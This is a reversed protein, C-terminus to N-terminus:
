TEPNVSAPREAELRLGSDRLYPCFGRGPDYLWCNLCKGDAYISPCDEDHDKCLTASM